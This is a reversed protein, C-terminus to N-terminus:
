PWRKVERRLLVIFDELMSELDFKLAARSRRSPSLGVVIRNKGVGAPGQNPSLIHEQRTRWGLGADLLTTVVVIESLRNQRDIRDLVWEGYRLIQRLRDTVDEEILMSLGTRSERRDDLVPRLVRVSGSSDLFVSARDQSILLADDRLESRTGVANDFIAPFVVEPYTAERMLDTQLQASELESPRLVQQRPGGVVVVGITPIYQNKSTPILAHAREVMEAEDVTTQAQSLELRHLAKTVADRLHEPTTFDDTFQGSEWDRVQRIFAEQKPEHQVGQRIFPLVRREGRAENYEEHTASYGTAQPQGYRDGLLLVVVDADRVGQLCAVQPSVFTSGFDEARIVEHGLSKAARAAADRFEELGVIVSSVFVKM